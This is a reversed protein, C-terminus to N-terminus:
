AIIRLTKNTAERFLSNCSSVSHKCKTFFRLLACTEKNLQIEVDGDWSNKRVADTRKSKKYGFELCQLLDIINSPCRLVFAAKIKIFLALHIFGLLRVPRRSEGAM